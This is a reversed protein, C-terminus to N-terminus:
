EGKVAAERIVQKEIVLNDYLEKEGKIAYEEKTPINYDPTTTIYHIITLTKSKKNKDTM